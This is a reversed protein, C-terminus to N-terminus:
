SRHLIFKQHPYDHEYCLEGEVFGLKKYLSRPATGKEDEERFTTVTVDCSESLHELMLAIMESAIGEKRFDPHVAMCCLMNYKVSFLLIGVVKGSKRACIATSRNINKVVTDQYGQLLEETELGPFNWRVARVLEMWSPLDDNIAFGVEIDNRM